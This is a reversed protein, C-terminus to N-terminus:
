KVSAEAKATEGKGYPKTLGLVSQASSFANTATQVSPVTATIVQYSVSSMPTRPKTAPRMSLVPQSVPEPAPIEEVTEKMTGDLEPKHLKTIEPASSVHNDELFWDLSSLMPSTPAVKLEEIQADKYSIETKLQSLRRELKSSEKASQHWALMSATTVTIGITFLAALQPSIIDEVKGNFVQQSELEIQVSKPGQTFLLATFGAVLTSSIVATPLLIQKLM